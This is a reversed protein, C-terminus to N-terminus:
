CRARSSAAPFAALPQFARSHSRPRGECAGTACMERRVPGGGQVALATSASRSRLRRAATSRATRPRCRPRPSCRRARTAGRATRRPRRSAGNAEVRELWAEKWFMLCAAQCGGHAARRVPPRSTCPTTCGDFVATAPVPRTPASRSASPGAATSCCRPCSRCATWRATPTSRRRSRSRAASASWSEPGCTSSRAALSVAAKSRFGAHSQTRHGHDMLPGIVSAFKCTVEAHLDCRTRADLPPVGADRAAAGEALAVGSAKGGAAAGLLMWLGIERRFGLLRPASRCTRRWRGLDAIRLNTLLMSAGPARGSVVEDILEPMPHSAFSIPGVTALWSSPVPGRGRVGARARPQRGAAPSDADGALVEDIDLRIDGLVCRAGAARDPARCPRPRSACGAIAGVTRGCSGPAARACARRPVSPAARPACRCQGPYRPRLRTTPSRRAPRPQDHPQQPHAPHRARVGAAGRGSACGTSSRTPTGPSSRRRRSRSACSWAGRRWSCSRTSARSRPRSARRAQGVLIM